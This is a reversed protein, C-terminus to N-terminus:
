MEAPATGLWWGRGVCWATDDPSGNRHISRVKRWHGRSFADALARAAQEDQAGICPVFEVPCLFRAIYEDGAHRTVLLMAGSGSEPALPFLLRGGPALADLWVALPEAAAASVYLIDCAPLPGQAGSRCHVAVQPFAALNAQARAALGPEIEYADVRGAAGVLMALVCTYYGGGAGVHVVREGPLPALTDLCLAHLSPQGNNLGAASGLGVLVDQYLEAPDSSVTRTDGEPFVIKWPPAGVFQERPIAALAAELASGPLIGAAATIRRAYVSRHAALRAAENPGAAGQTRPTPVLITDDPNM